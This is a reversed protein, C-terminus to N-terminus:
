GAIAEGGDVQIVNGTIWHAGAHSLAVIASAVDEPRTLRGSPNRALAVKMMDENGPIKRLAPTDTVGAMIANATIGEPALEAALQRIHSELACKAASVAGYGKWVARSGWSTMAFIRANKAFLARRRTDQTWYVLSHAMVDLTMDMNMKTIAAEDTDAAYPKLTGFALSHLLVRVSEGKGREAFRARVTELVERRKGEDSANVNFFWAERGAAEIDRVVQEVAPMTARRDLHVGIVNMGAKALAVSTAAGFGSSAGLVLAFGDLQSGNSSTM